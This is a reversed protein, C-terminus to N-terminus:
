HVHKKPKYNRSSSHSHVLKWKNALKRFLFTQYGSKDFKRDSNKVKGKVRTDAIAWAFIPNEGGEFNVEINSFNLKLYELSDKEPEVHHTVLSDLGANQGGSEIYRAGTYDLFNKRFPTGDGNEWGYKIAAIIDIIQARDDSAAVEAKAFMGAEFHGPINCAFVVKGDAAFKWTLSKTEGPEVTVTNGDQHTMGPMKRMMAQHEKQEASDGVSFEHAIKGQNTVEFTVIEGAKFDLKDSFEYRMSDKTTVKIVRTSQKADAPWGVSSGEGDHEHESDHSSSTISQNKSEKHSEDHDSKHNGGAFVLSSYLGLIALFSIRSTTKM